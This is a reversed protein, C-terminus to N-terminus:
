THFDVLMVPSQKIQIIYILFKSVYTSCFSAEVRGFNYEDTHILRSLFFGKNRSWVGEMVKWGFQSHIVELNFDTRVGNGDLSVEGSEGLFSSSRMKDVLRSGDAWLHRPSSCSNHSHAGPGSATPVSSMSKTMIMAAVSTALHTFSDYLIMSALSHSKDTKLKLLVIESGLKSYRQVDTMDLDLCPLIIKNEPGLLGSTMAEELFQLGSIKDCQSLLVSKSDSYDRPDLTINYGNIFLFHSEKEYHVSLNLYPIVDQSNMYAVINIDAEHKMLAMAAEAISSLSPFLQVTM